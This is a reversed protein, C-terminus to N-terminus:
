FGGIRIRSSAVLASSLLVSSAIRAVSSLSARLRVLMVM